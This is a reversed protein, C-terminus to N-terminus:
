FIWTKIKLYFLWKIQLAFYIYYLTIFILVILTKVTLIKPSQRWFKIKIKLSSVCFFKVEIVQEIGGSSKHPISM